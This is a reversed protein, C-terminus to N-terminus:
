TAVLVKGHDGFRGHAPIHWEQEWFGESLLARGEWIVQFLSKRGELSVGRIGFSM